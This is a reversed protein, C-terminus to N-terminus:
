STLGLLRSAWAEQSAIAPLDMAAAVTLLMGRAFFARAQEENVNPTQEIISFLAANRRRVVERVEVDDCAAYSQLLMLMLESQQTLLTYEQGIGFLPNGSSAQPSAFAEREIREYIRHVAALFLAKKTPFLRFLNPQSIGAREAIAVTSAGHLGQTSFETIAAALIDERREEATVRTKKNSAIKNM